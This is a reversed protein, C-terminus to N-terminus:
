ETVLKVAISILAGILVIIDWALLPKVREYHPITNFYEATKWILLALVAISFLQACRGAIMLIDAM